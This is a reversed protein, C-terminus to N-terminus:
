EATTIDPMLETLSYFRFQHDHHSQHNCSEQPLLLTEETTCTNPNNATVAVAVPLKYKKFEFLTALLLPKLAAPTSSRM